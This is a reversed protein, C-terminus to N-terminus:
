NKSSPRPNSNTGHIYDMLEDISLHAKSGIEAKSKGGSKSSKSSTAAVPKHTAARKNLMNQKQIRALKDLKALQVASATLEHLWEKSEKTRKDDEGLQELFVRYAIQEAEMAKQLDGVLTYSKALIHYSTATIINKEGFANTLTKTSHQFYKLSEEYLRYHQLMAGINSFATSRDPHGPTDVMSWLDLAHRVYRLATLTNSQSHELLGLNLYNFISESSDLGQTRECIIAAKQMFQCAQAVENAQYYLMAVSAYCRGTEVHLFGYTQEHLTLSELLLELGLERQGRSLAISGAESAEDVFSSFHSAETVLPYFNCVDDAMFTTPRNSEEKAKEKLANRQQKTLKQGQGNVNPSSRGKTPAKIANKVNDLLEEESVKVFRYDRSHLQAGLAKCVERLLVGECNHIYKEVLDEPLTYQYRQGVDKKILDILSDTTLSALASTEKADKSLISSPDANVRSGLLCNLVHAFAEPHLELPTQRFAKRVIHKTARVVMERIVLTFVHAGAFGQSALKEQDEKKEEDKEGGKEEENSETKEESSAVAEKEEASGSELLKAILGLYRMNVGRRHMLRTLSSSDIPSVSYTSLDRVLSPIVVDRLFKSAERLTKHQNDVNEEDKLNESIDASTFLDPNFELTLSLKELQEQVMQGEKSIEELTEKETKEEKEDSGNGGDKDENAKEESAKNNAMYEQIAQRVRTDWFIDILERRLFVLKHPYAEHGEASEKQCSEEFFEIDVPNLRYLDLLYKRQDTGIIGKTEVSTYLTYLKGDEDKVQHEPLHLAKSIEDKVVQHFDESSEIKKGNDISGYVIQKESHSSFIGPVITQAVVRTGRYDVVVSGLTHISKPDIRNILRVGEIDKGTAVHAAEDGGLEAFTDRSDTGKSYFINERLYMQQDVPDLPNIPLLEGDVVAMAGAVAAETFEAQWKHIQRDRLVRESLNERPLERLTQLDDNWDRLGEVGRSGNRLLVQQTRSVDYSNTNFHGAGNLLVDQKPSLSTGISALQDNKSGVVMWPVAAHFSSSFPLIELADRSQMWQHLRAYHVQFQKSLKNLLNVLSHSYLSSTDKKSANPKKAHGNLQQTTRPSPNFRTLSSQNVFFGKTSATIHYSEGELTTVLLYLLDGRLQRYRPVPNWGSLVLQKLCKPLKESTTGGQSNFKKSIFSLPAPIESSYEVFPHDKTFTSESFAKSEEDPQSNDQTKKKKGNSKGGNERKEGSESGSAAASENDETHGKLDTAEIGDPYKVKSLLSVGADIGASEPVIADPGALLDILRSVHIRAERETYTDEVVELVAEMPLDAIEGIETFENLRTGNYSLSFCSYEMTDATETVVQKINQIPEQATVAISISAGNPAKITLQYIPEEVPLNQAEENQPSDAGNPALSQEQQTTSPVQDKTADNTNSHEMATPNIVETM